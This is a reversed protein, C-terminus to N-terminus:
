KKQINMVEMIRTYQRDIAEIKDSVERYAQQAHQMQEAQKQLAETQAKLAELQCIYERSVKEISQNLRKMSEEIQ